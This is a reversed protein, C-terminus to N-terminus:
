SNIKSGPTSRTGGRTTYQTTLIPASLAGAALACAQVAYTMIQQIALCRWSIETLPLQQLAPAVSVCFSVPDVEVDSCSLGEDSPLERERRLNAQQINATYRARFEAMVDAARHRCEPHLDVYIDALRDVEDMVVPAFFIAPLQQETM